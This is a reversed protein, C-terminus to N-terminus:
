SNSAHSRSGQMVKFPINLILIHSNNAIQPNALSGEQLETIRIDTRSHFPHRSIRGGLLMPEPNQCAQTFYRMVMDVSFCPLSIHSLVKMTVM